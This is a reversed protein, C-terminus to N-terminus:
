GRPHHRRHLEQLRAQAVHTYIQTTSLDSHGLLMQLSRLDAGHNLLHTAFAHRLSHPTFSSGIGARVLYKKLHQWFAQRTMASGRVSLFVADTDTGPRLLEPRAEDLYRTLWDSAEEGIPIVREKAGKGTLRLLGADLNVQGLTLGVLESVRLGSGYMSELMARDRLGFVTDVDPAQLLREMDTESLSGPLHRALRPADVHESPNDGRLSQRQMWRCFQKISSLQRALTRSSVGQEGRWALYAQLREATLQQLSEQGREVLWRQLAVLDRRYADLTAMSLGREAWISDLYNEILSM